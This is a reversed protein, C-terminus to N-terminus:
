AHGGELFPSLRSGLLVVIKSGTATADNSLERGAELLDRMIEGLSGRDENNNLGRAVEAIRQVLEFIQESVKLQIHINERIVVLAL